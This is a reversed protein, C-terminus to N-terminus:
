FVPVKLKISIRKLLYSLISKKTEHVVDLIIGAERVKKM